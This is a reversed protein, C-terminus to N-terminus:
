KRRRWIHRLFSEGVKDIEVRAQEPWKKAGLPPAPPQEASKHCRFVVAQADDQANVDSSPGRYHLVDRCVRFDQLKVFFHAGSITKFTYSWRQSGRWRQM